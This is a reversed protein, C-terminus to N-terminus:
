SSRGTVRTSLAVQWLAGIIAVFACGLVNFWLYGIEPIYGARGVSYLALVLVESCIAGWFVAQAKIRTAFFGVLFVGLVTGYFLSGLINILEILNDFLSTLLAFGIAIVGWLM